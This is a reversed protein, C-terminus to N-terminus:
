AAMQSGSREVIVVCGGAALGDLYDASVAGVIIQEAGNIPEAFWDDGAQRIAAYRRSDGLGRFYERMERSRLAADIATTRANLLALM